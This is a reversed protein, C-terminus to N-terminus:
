TYRGLLSTVVNRALDLSSKCLCLPRGLAALMGAECTVAEEEESTMFVPLPSVDPLFSLEATAGMGSKPCPALGAGTELCTHGSISLTQMKM